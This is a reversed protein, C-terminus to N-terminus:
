HSFYSNKEIAQTKGFAPHKRWLYYAAYFISPFWLLLSALIREKGHISPLVVFVFFIFLYFLDFSFSPTKNDNKFFTNLIFILGLYGIITMALAVLYVRWYPNYQYHLFGNGITLMGSTFLILLITKTHKNIINRIIFKYLLIVSLCLFAVGVVDFREERLPPSHVYFAIFDPIFSNLFKNENLFDIFFGCFIFGFGGIFLLLSLYYRLHLLLIAIYPVIIIAFVPQTKEAIMNSESLYLILSLSIFSISLKVESPRDLVLYSYFSILFIIFLYFKTLQEGVTYETKLDTYNSILSHLPGELSYCLFYFIWFALVITISEKIKNDTNPLHKINQM